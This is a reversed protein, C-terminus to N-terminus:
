LVPHPWVNGADSAALIMLEFISYYHHKPALGQFIIMSYRLVHAHVPTAERSDVGLCQQQRHDGRGALGGCHGAREPALIRLTVEDGRITNKEKKSTKDVFCM